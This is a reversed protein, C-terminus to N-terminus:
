VRCKNPEVHLETLRLYLAMWQDRVVPASFWKCAALANATLHEVLSEDELLRLAARALAEHDDCPVLLATRENEALYPIGGAATAVVPLGSAFCELLSGPMCDINPSTLYIDAADYLGAVQEHPVEGIFRYHRLGISGAFDELEARCPGDHAVVLSAEPYRAQVIKFARLTCRVNYLPELRRNHLFAPRLRRRPRFHFRSPDIM